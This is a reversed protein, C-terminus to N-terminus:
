SEDALNELQIELSITTGQGPVSHIEPKTRLVKAREAMGTLGLGHKKNSLQATLDM